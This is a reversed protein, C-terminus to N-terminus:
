CFLATGFVVSRSCTNSSSAWTNNNGRVRVSGFRDSVARQPSGMWGCGSFFPPEWVFPVCLEIRSSAGCYFVKGTGNTAKVTLKTGKAEGGGRGARRRRPRASQEKKRYPRRLCRLCRRVCFCSYFGVVLPPPPPLSPGAPLGALRVACCQVTCVGHCLRGRLLSLPLRM